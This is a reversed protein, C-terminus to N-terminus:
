VAVYVAAAVGSLHIKLSTGTPSLTEPPATEGPPGDYEESGSWIVKSWGCTQVGIPIVQGACALNFIILAREGSPDRREVVLWRKEEDYTVRILDKRCNSLSAYRKRIAILRRYYELIGRHPPVAQLAWDLRGQEFTNVDQPDLFEGGPTLSGTERRRGERVADALAADGHDTFYHFPALEGYEQGMFLLPVFPSLLLVSATLKQQEASLLRSLRKGGLANAIQDHNQTFVVFQQGPRDASSSGHRRRRYTSRKGDYVFGETISKVLDRLHGFDVFYGHTDRTLVTYLSHHFDDNWQADMGYGGQPAPRIVRVDNLDSEAILWARRGLAEAQRCVADAL